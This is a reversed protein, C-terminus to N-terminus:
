PIIPFTTFYKIVVNRQSGNKTTFDIEIDPKRTTAAIREPWEILRITSEDELFERLGLETVDDCHNIRYLDFHTISIKGAYSHLYAYTPSQVMTSQGCLAAIFGQTFTTKGMGLDGVLFILAPKLALQEALQRGLDRMAEPTTITFIQTNM